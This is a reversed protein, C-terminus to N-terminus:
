KKEVFAATGSSIDLDISQSWLGYPNGDNIEWWVQAVPKEGESMQTTTGPSCRAVTIYKYQEPIICTLTTGDLAPNGAAFEGDKDTNFAWVYTVANYNEWWDPMGTVTVEKTKAKPDSPTSSGNNINLYLTKLTDWAADALKNGERKVQATYQSNSIKTDKGNSLKCYKNVTIFFGYSEKTAKGSLATVTKSKGGASYTFKLNFTKNDKFTVQAKGTMGDSITM